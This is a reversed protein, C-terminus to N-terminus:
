KFFIAQVEMANIGFGDPQPFLFTGKEGKMIKQTMQWIQQWNTVLNREDGNIEVLQCHFLYDRKSKIRLIKFSRCSKMTEGLVEGVLILNWRPSSALQWFNYQSLKKFGAKLINEASLSAGFLKKIKM